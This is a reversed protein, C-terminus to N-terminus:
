KRKFHYTKVLSGDSDFLFLFSEPAGWYESAEISWNLRGIVNEYDLEEKYYYLIKEYDTKGKARSLILKMKTSINTM